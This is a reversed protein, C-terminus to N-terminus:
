TPDEEELSDSNSVLSLDSTKGSGHFILPSFIGLRKRYQSLLPFCSTNEPKPIKHISRTSYGTHLPIPISTGQTWTKTKFHQTYNLSFGSPKGRYGPATSRSSCVEDEEGARREGHCATLPGVAQMALWGNSHINAWSFHQWTPSKKKCCFFGMM